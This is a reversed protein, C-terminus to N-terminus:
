PRFFTLVIPKIVMLSKSAVRLHSEVVVETGHQGCDRKVATRMVTSPTRRRYLKAVFILCNEATLLSLCVLNKDEKKPDLSLLM